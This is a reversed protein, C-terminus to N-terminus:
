ATRVVDQYKWRIRNLGAASTFCTATARYCSDSLVLHKSQKMVNGGQTPLKLYVRSPYMTLKNLIIEDGMCGHM